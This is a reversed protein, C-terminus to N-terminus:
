GHADDTRWAAVLRFGPRRHVRVAMGAAALVRRLEPATFSRRVSVVGDRRTVPHLRLAFSAAWIGAAALPTRRPETVIVGLRALGSFVGALRAAADRSFHHLFQSALVIDVSREALPPSAADAVVPLLGAGACLGAAVRHADLAVPVLRVGRAAARRALAAALDGAGAGVDLLSLRPPPTRGALLLDFGFRAAARGGFLRNVRAIDGLTARALGDPCRPDDLAESGVPSATLATVGAM